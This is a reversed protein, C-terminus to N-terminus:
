FYTEVSNTEVIANVKNSLFDLLILSRKKDIFEKFIADIFGLKGKNVKIKDGDKLNEIRKNFIDQSNCNKKIRQLIEESLICPKEGFKLVQKIGFTNHIKTWNVEPKVSVFIYGPFLPKLKPTKKNLVFNAKYIKPFFVEFGQRVLNVCALNEKHPKTNAVLWYEKMKKSMYCSSLYSFM